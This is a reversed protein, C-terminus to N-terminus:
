RSFMEEEVKTKPRNTTLMKWDISVSALDDISLEGMGQPLPDLFPYTEKAEKLEKKGIKFKFKKDKVKVEENKVKDPRIKFDPVRDLLKKFDDKNNTVTKALDLIPVVEKKKGLFDDFKAM